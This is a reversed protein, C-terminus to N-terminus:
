LNFSCHRDSGKKNDAQYCGDTGDHLRSIGDHWLSSPLNFGIFAKLVSAEVRIRIGPDLNIGIIILVDDKYSQLVSLLILVTLAASVNTCPARSITHTLRNDHGM